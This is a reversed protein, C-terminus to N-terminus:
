PTTDPGGSTVSSAARSEAAYARQAKERDARVVNRFVITFIVGLGGLIVAFTVYQMTGGRDGSDVPERGCGPQQLLGLCESLPRELDYAVDPADPPPEMQANVVGPSACAFVVAVLGVLVKSVIRGMGDDDCAFRTRAWGAALVPGSGAHGTKSPEASPARDRRRTCDIRDHGLIDFGGDFRYRVGGVRRHQHDIEAGLVGLQDSPADPLMVDVGLDNRMPDRGSLDGSPTRSRDHQRPSGLTNVDLSRWTEIRLDELQSNRNQADTVPRLQDSMLEPTFYTSTLAAFVAPGMELHQRPGCPSKEVAKRNM